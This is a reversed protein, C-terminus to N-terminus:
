FLSMQAPTPPPSDMDDEDRFGIFIPFRPKDKVGGAFFKFKVIRGVLDENWLTERQAQDFGSGISAEYVVGRVHEPVIDDSPFVGRVQVAGLVGMPIMNEQHSSREQQCLANTKSENQNSRLETVDVIIAETDIWRADKVKILEGQAATGRGCKYFRDPHRLIIGEHGLTIQQIEWSQLEEMTSFKVTELLSVNEPWFEAETQLLSLRNSFTTPMDWRDFVFFHLEPDSQDFSMVSSMTRHYCHRATPDGCIMEGDLGELLVKNWSILSQVQSSRVPKLSRTYAVGDRIFVRIGDLKLQGFMPLMRAVRDPEYKGGLMPKM